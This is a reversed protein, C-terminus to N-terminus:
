SWFLCFRERHSRQLRYISSHIFFHISSHIFFHIFSHIFPHISPHISLQKSTHIYTHIYTHICTYIYMYIHTHTHTDIYTYMHTNTYTYMFVHIHIGKEMGKITRYYPELLLQTLATLQSTRDWGDSCHTLCPDGKELHCALYIAGKLLDSLHQLWKSDHVAQLFDLGSGSNGHSNGSSGGAGSLAQRLANYSQRMAHINEINAFKLTTCDPGGLRAVIEHGKGMLANGKANILPRADLIRLRTIKKIKRHQKGHSTSVSGSETHHHYHHYQRKSREKRMKKVTDKQSKGSIIPVTIGVGVIGFDNMVENSVEDYRTLKTVGSSSSSSIGKGSGGTGVANGGDKDDDYYNNNNHDNSEVTKIIHNGELSEDLTGGDDEWGVCILWYLCSTLNYVCMCPYM